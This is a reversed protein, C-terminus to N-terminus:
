RGIETWLQPPADTSDIVRDGLVTDGRMCLRWRGQAVANIYCMYAMGDYQDPTTAEDVCLARLGMKRGRGSGTTEFQWCTEDDYLLAVLAERNWLAAQLNLYYPFAPDVVYLRPDLDYSGMGGQAGQTSRWFRVHEAEKRDVIGAFDVATQTDVPYTLWCDDHIVLITPSTVAGLATRMMHTWNTDKGTAITGLPAEKVNTIFLTPWPCDPWHKAWAFAFPRWLVDWGDWSSVLVTVDM